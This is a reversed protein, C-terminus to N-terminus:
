LRAMERTGVLVCGGLGVGDCVCVWVIWCLCEGVCAVVGCM